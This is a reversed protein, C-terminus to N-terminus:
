AGISIRHEVAAPPLEDGRTTLEIHLVIHAIIPAVLSGTILFAVAQLGCAFLAGVLMPRAARRRFQEYGLHHVLIVVLSGFVALIGAAAKGGGTNTWGAATAAQWLTLVPYVALLLAEATGYVVDEWAILGARDLGTPSDHAPLRRVMPTVIAAVAIGAATGWLVNATVADGITTGSYALYWWGVAVVTLALVGVYATRRLRLLDTMVFTVLFAAILVTVYGLVAAQWGFSPAATPM